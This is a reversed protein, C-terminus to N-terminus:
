KDDKKMKRLAALQQPSIMVTESLGAGAADPLPPKAPAAKPVGPGSAAAQGNRGALFSALADPGMVVTKALGADEDTVAGGPKEGAPPGGSAEGPRITPPGADAADVAPTASASQGKKQMFAALQDPSMLVTKELADEAPLEPVQEEAGVPTEEAVGAVVPEAPLDGLWKRRIGLLIRCIATDSDEAPMAVAPVAEVTFLSQRVEGALETLQATFAAASFDPAPQCSQGLLSWGLGLAKQWLTLWEAPLQQAAPQWFINAPNFCGSALFDPQGEVQHRDYMVALSRAIDRATQRSNALLVNFWLLSLAHLGLSAPVKLFASEQPPAMGIALPMARFNWFYPLPGAFDAFDVWFQDITLRLDAHQLQQLAPFCEKGIQALLALKLYLVELFRRGDQFFLSIGGAERGGLAKVCAARGPLGAVELRAALEAVPAGSILSLFDGAHLQRAHTVIMRFPYFAFPIIRAAAQKGGAFCEGRQQCGACPFGAASGNNEALQAFADILARCNKVLAGATDPADFAYFDGRGEGAHCVPCFLFRQLSSSYAPLGAALLVQDVTCLELLRGCRPCPPHFFRQQCACYFLSKWLPMASSGDPPLLVPRSGADAAAAQGAQRWLADIDQNTFPPQIESFSYQDKQMLLFVEKVTQQPGATFAAFVLRTLPSSADVDPFHLPAAPASSVRDPVSVKLYVKSSEPDLWPLLSETALIQDM